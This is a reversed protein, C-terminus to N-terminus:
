GLIRALPCIQIGEKEFAERIKKVFDLAKAGDGHVCVSEACLEIDTGDVARVKHEKVMRITRAIAENEDTIMAGEKRRNVLSGDPEYARDTFYERAVALGVDKAAQVLKGSALAMVILSSDYEYIAEAIAKALAYDKGAMNYMAGHPKVHQMKVGQSKCFADLAGLQYTTYAKAEAPSVDMNRRGFGQLDPYGPHAGMHIGAEKAMAVTRSM